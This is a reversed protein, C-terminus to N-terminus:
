PNSSRGIRRNEHPLTLTSQFVYGPAFYQFMWGVDALPLTASVTVSETQDDIVAPSIDVQASTAGVASFIVNAGARADNATAGPVIAARAGEYVAQDVAQQMQIFRWSELFFMIVLFFIPLCFAMEVTTAGRRHPLPNKM